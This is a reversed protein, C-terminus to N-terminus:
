LSFSEFPFSTTLFVVNSVMLPKLFESMVSNVFDHTSQHKKSFGFPLHFEFSFLFSHVITLSLETQEIAIKLADFSNSLGIIASLLNFLFPFISTLQSKILSYM